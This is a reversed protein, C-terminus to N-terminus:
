QFKIKQNTKIPNKNLWVFKIVKIKKESIAQNTRYQKAIKNPVVFSSIFITEIVKKNNPIAPNSNEKPSKNNSNNLVVFM